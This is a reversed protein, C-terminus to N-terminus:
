IRLRHVITAAVFVLAGIVISVATISLQSQVLPTWSIILEAYIPLEILACMGLAVWLILDGIFQVVPLENETSAVVLRVCHARVAGLTQRWYWWAGREPYQEVLDGLFSERQQESTCRTLIWTALRQPEVASM